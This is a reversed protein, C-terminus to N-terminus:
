YDSTNWCQIYIVTYAPHLEGNIVPPSKLQELELYTENWESIFPWMGAAEDNCVSIIRLPLVLMSVDM